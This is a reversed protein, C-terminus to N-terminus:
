GHRAKTRLEVSRCHADFGEAQAITCATAAMEKSIGNPLTVVSTMKLFDRVGLPSGFRATGGTPLVHSPGAVYDGLAPACDNGVFICGANRIGELYPRPDSVALSVHEPAYLNVLDIAQESTDVVALTGRQLVSDAVIAGRNLSKMQTIVEGEIAEAMASSTTILVASALPDHEGQALLDAACYAPNASGDAVVVLESPGQLGDIDVVGFVAKKALTVFVNGPGCIKDVAPVTETGYAMAAIAQAGGVKFVRDACAAEAAVLTAAPIRGDKGPPTCIVVEKVGAAKAPVVTMLVTSPYCARGGPVYVGVRELPQVMIGIGQVNLKRGLTGRDAVHFDHIRKAAHHLAGLLKAPADRRAVDFEDGSVEIASLEVGDIRRSYDFLAADRRRRVDEIIRHVAQEPTLSEGFSALIRDRMEPTADFNVGAARRSLVVRAAEHGRVLQM